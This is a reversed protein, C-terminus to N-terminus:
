HALRLGPRPWELALLRGTASATVYATRREPDPEGGPTRDAFCINTVIPDDLAHHEHGSGDPAVATIGGRMITAVCVWGDGDVALSDFLDGEPADYLLTGGSHDAEGRDGGAGPATGAAPLPAVEGAATVAWAWLQGPYTEAVYLRDGRPSLGVGNASNTGHVVARIETGDARAYYVGPRDPHHDPAVGHDTFWFGGHADFVLDNPGRLQVGDAEIFLTEVNGTDLDVRQISGGTHSAPCPGPITMDGIDIWEFSSGNNCVYGKGDPGIALGNPGGGTEAVVEVKGDATIRSITGRRIETLLVTGDPM